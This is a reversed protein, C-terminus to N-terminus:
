QANCCSVIANNTANGDDDGYNLSILIHLQIQGANRTAYMCTEGTQRTYQANTTWGRWMVNAKEPSTNACLRWVFSCKLLTCQQIYASRIRICYNSCIIMLAIWVSRTCVFKCHRANVCIEPPKCCRPRRCPSRCAFPAFLCPPGTLLSASFHFCLIAIRM